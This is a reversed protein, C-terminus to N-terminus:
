RGLGPFTLVNRVNAQVSGDPLTQPASIGQALGHGFEDSILECRFMIAGSANPIIPEGSQYHIIIPEAHTSRGASNGPGLRDINYDGFVMMTGQPVHQGAFEGGLTVGAPNTVSLAWGGDHIVWGASPVSEGSITYARYQNRPDFMFSGFMIGSDSVADISFREIFFDIADQRNQSIEADSQGMIERQFFMGDPADYAPDAPDYQGAAMYVLYKNFGDPTPTGRGGAALALGSVSMALAV